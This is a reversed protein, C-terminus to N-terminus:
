VHIFIAHASVCVRVCVVCVWVCHVYYSPIIIGVDVDVDMDEDVDREGMEFIFRVLRMAAKVRKYIYYM